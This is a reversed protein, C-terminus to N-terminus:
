RVPSSDLCGCSVSRGSKDIWLEYLTGIVIDRATRADGCRQGIVLLLIQLTAPQVFVLRNHPIM